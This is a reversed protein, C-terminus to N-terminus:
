SFYMRATMSVLTNTDAKSHPPVGRASSSWTRLLVTVSILLGASNASLSFIRLLTQRQVADLQAWVPLDGLLLFGTDRAATVITQDAARQRQSDRSLM